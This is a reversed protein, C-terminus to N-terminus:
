QESSMAAILVCITNIVVLVDCLPELDTDVIPGCVFQCEFKKALATKNILTIRDGSKLPRTINCDVLDDNLWLGNRCEPERTLTFGDPGQCVSCYLSTTAM